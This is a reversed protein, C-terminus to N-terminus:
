EKENGVEIPGLGATRHVEFRNLLPQVGAQRSGPSAAIMEAEFYPLEGQSHSFSQFMAYDSPIIEQRAHLEDIDGPSFWSVAGESQERAVGDPAYVACVFILFHGAADGLGAPALRENVIGCLGEFVAGLGTEEEVERVAAGALTEGFDIKGGVLAWKGAYPAQRRRILLYRPEGEGKTRRVLNVVVPLPGRQQRWRRARPLSTLQSFIDEGDM